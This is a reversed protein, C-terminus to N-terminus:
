AEQKKTDVWIPDGEEMDALKETFPGLIKPSKGKVVNFLKIYFTVGGEDNITSVPYYDRKITRPGKKDIRTVLTMPQGPWLGSVWKDAPPSDEFNEM